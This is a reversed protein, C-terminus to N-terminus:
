AGMGKIYIYTLLDQAGPCELSRITAERLDSTVGDVTFTRISGATVNYITPYKVLTGNKYTLLVEFSLDTKGNNYVILNLTNTGSDWVGGQIYARAESCLEFQARQRTAWQSTWTAVIGAIIMVVAILMIVAILPSIGKMGNKM